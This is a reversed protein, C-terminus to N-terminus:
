LWGRQKLAAKDAGNEPVCWKNKGPHWRAGYEKAEDKRDWPVNLLIIPSGGFPPKGARKAPKRKGKKKIIADLKQDEVSLCGHITAIAREFLLDRAEKADLEGKEVRQLMMELLATTIPDSLQQANADCFEILSKGLATPVLKRKDARIYSRDKLKQVTDGWTSKTGITGAHRLLQKHEESKITTSLNRMAAIISGETFAKPAVTHKQVPAVRLATGVNGTSVPPILTEQEAEKAAEEAEAEADGHGFVVKWGLEIPTRGTAKFPYGAAPWALTVQEYRYNPLFQALYQRVILMYLKLEDDSLEALDPEETTPVIGHHDAGSAALKKSSFVDDRIIPEAPVHAAIDAFSEKGKLTVPEAPKLRAIHALTDAVDGVQDDELHIGDTRPYSIIKHEDYLKQAIEETRAATWGWLNHARIQLSSSEFLAPPKQQQEKRTVEIPVSQGSVSDAVARAEALDKIRDGEPPRYHVAVEHDGVEITAGIEYYPESKFNEIERDRRVIMSLAATQVRGVSIVGKHGDPKFRLSFLRSLNIGELWDSEARVAAAIALKKKEKYPLIGAIAKRISAANAGSSWLRRVPGRYGTLKLILYAIYEGERGADTAVIVDDAGRMGMKIANWFHKKNEIVRYEFPEPVIPLADLTWAELSEEYDKPEALQVLHGSAYLVRGNDTDYGHKLGPAKKPNGLVAALEKAFSHKEAIWVRM